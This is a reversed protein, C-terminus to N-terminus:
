QAVQETFTKQATGKPGSYGIEGTYEGQMDIKISGTYTGPAGSKQLPANARMPMGPMDMRLGFSVNGIDVPEGTSRNTVKVELSNRGVHLQSKEGRVEFQYDGLAETRITEPMAAAGNQTPWLWWAAGGVVLVVAAILAVLRLNWRRRPARPQPAADVELSRWLSYVAPIIILTLVTSSNDNM